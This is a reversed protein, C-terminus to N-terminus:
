ELLIRKSGRCQGNGRPAIEYVRRASEQQAEVLLPTFQLDAGDPPACRMSHHNM